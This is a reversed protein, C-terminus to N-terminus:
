EESYHLIRTSNEAETHKKEGGVQHLYYSFQRICYATVVYESNRM